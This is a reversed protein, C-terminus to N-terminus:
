CTDLGIQLEKVWPRLLEDYLVAPQVNWIRLRLLKVAVLPQPWSHLLQPDIADDGCREVQPEPTGCLGRAM